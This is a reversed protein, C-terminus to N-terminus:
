IDPPKGDNRTKTEATARPNGKEDAHCTGCAVPIGQPDDALHHHCDVCAMAKGMATEDLHFLHGYTVPTMEENGENLLLRHLLRPLRATGDPGEEGGVSCGLLAILLLFGIRRV